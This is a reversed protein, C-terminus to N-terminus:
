ANGGLTIVRPSPPDAYLEDVLVARHRLVMRQNLSGKDTAEGVDLSPPDVLLHARCVRNSGGTAQRAFANLRGRMEAMVNPHYLLDGLPADKPLDPALSRCAAADPFIFIGIEDRDAGAIVVDKAYPAFHEVLRARLPGVSVWTGSALKFDEATRGDFLLGHGPNAPDEFKLADGLRYFGEEDFSRATLDPQRWYGPTIHPGRVRADLKGEMPVLKLESGPPPLGMNTSNHSEWVRAMAFPATETSGLGTLFLIREGCTKIALEKMEDFVPQALAAGAFWLVKLRSFFNRRLEDDARFYPILAEYGKPVTFYWTPAIERLNRVTEDILGPVPKGEDIYMTGGNMLVLGVDHNGGATHHWPAWDVVVPPEDQLFALSTHLMVQNSCWMRQTNIVGKPMGTSGSTFLVKAITDPGVAAHATDAARDPLMGTLESFLTTPRRPSPNRTVVVELVPSVAHEIARAFVGGDAAFVLGPTLLDLIHKLRAFDSSVLSYPPSVPAYPIGIYMAALGLLAHEIDNGSLIVIPREPSLDRRLLATAIRRVRELAEAYSVRRWGGTADRQAMFTRDPAVGAWHELRETLKVPYPALTHPSRIYITGDPRHDFLADRPGLRVARIPAAPDPRFETLPM